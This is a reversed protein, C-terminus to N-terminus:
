LCGGGAKASPPAYEGSDEPLRATAWADMGGALARAATFRALCAALEPEDGSESIVVTPVTALIRSRAAEPARALDCAPLPLAGPVHTDEYGDALDPRVDLLQLAAAGRSLQQYLARAEVPVRRELEVRRRGEVLLLGALVVLAAVWGLRELDARTM